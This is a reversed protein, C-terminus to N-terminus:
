PRGSRPGAPELTAWAPWGIWREVAAIAVGVAILALVLRVRQASPPRAQWKKAKLLWRMFFM